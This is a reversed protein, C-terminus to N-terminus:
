TTGELVLQSQEARFGTVTLPVDGLLNNSAGAGTLQAALPGPVPLGGFDIGTVELQAKGQNVRPLATMTFPVSVIATKLQGNINVQGPVTHVQVASVPAQVEGRAIAENLRATLEPDTVAFSVPVHRGQAANQRIQAEASALRADLVPGGSANPAGSGVVAIAPRPQSIARYVLTGIAVLVLLGILTACGRILRFV